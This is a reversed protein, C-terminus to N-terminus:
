KYSNYGSRISTWDNFENAIAAGSVPLGAAAWSGAYLTNLGFGLAHGIHGYTYNGLEEPTALWGHYVVQVGWGPYTGAGVTTNWPDPRKIDWPAGHYVQSLFWAGKALTGTFSQGMFSVVTSATDLNKATNATNYLASGIPSSFDKYWTGSIQTVTVGAARDNATLMTMSYYTEDWVMMKGDANIYTEQGKAGLGVTFTGLRNYDDAWVGASLTDGNWSVGYGDGEATGRLPIYALGSPDIFNIPNNNCFIYWNTGQRAPDESLMRSTAPDYYRARLYAQTLYFGIKKYLPM